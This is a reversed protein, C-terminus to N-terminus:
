CAHAQCGGQAQCRALFPKKQMIQSYPFSFFLWPIIWFSWCQGSGHAVSTRLGLALSRHFSPGAGPGPARLARRWGRQSCDSGPRPCGASADVAAEERVGPVKGVRFDWRSQDLPLSLEGFSDPAANPFPLKHQAPGVCHGSELGNEPLPTLAQVGQLLSCSPM